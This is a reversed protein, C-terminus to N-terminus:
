CPNLVPQLRCPGVVTKWGNTEYSKKWAAILDSDDGPMEGVDNFFAYMICRDTTYRHALNWPTIM